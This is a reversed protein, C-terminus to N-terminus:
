PQRRGRASRCSTRVSTGLTPSGSIMWGDTLKVACARPTSVYLGLRFSINQMVTLEGYIGNTDPLYSMVCPRGREVSGESPALLGLIVRVLTTKGVGNEGQLIYLRGREFTYSIHAFVYKDYKFGVNSLRVM